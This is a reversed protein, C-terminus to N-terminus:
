VQPTLACFGLLSGSDKVNDQYGAPNHFDKPALVTNSNLNLQTLYRPGKVDAPERPCPCKLEGHSYNALSKTKFATKKELGM